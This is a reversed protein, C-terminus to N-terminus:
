FGIRLGLHARLGTLSTTNLEPFVRLGKVADYQGGLILGMRPTLEPEIGFAAGVGWASGEEARFGQPFVRQIYYGVHAGLYLRWTPWYRAQVAIVEHIVEATALPLNDFLHAREFTTQYFPNLSWREGLPWQVDLGAGGGASRYELPAGATAIRSRHSVASAQLGPGGLPQAAAPWALLTLAGLLFLRKCHRIM